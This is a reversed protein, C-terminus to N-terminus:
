EEKNEETVAEEVTEEVPAERPERAANVYAMLEEGTITEKLLLYESVEDLLARNEKLISLASDFASDLLNKVERDVRAATDQSCDMYPTGDLYSNQTTATTMLGLDSSMGYQSVMNRALSTARQLDNSAGTTQVGFVLQEAARGGVLSKLEVELEQRTSLFKEEEPLYMTYGLAGSTHPVITIKSVPQAHKELASVLAHGVEHYAVLRKEMETLVTNKKETGAIVTEFSVLLDEQNVAKRGMRVARLAAENVLNALDAGVAGATAQAIKKLDVDESLKIKRTHVKLTDLRGQYNPRDVIIRRDFRGPRLLAKDLIEPRNTAALCVIGKSPEFGDIESLLQNLTQEQESNNGYRNDRSRGVADIEDIFIICPAVKAAQQFLDRVRSAGMGVFMEVFDSGSISFFPVDAEGAVARALLTKGTGPSGVLLAGKPLKAGIEAYRQPNHLFDIIEKLSEKAEDQGAVDKFTVGTQKEMYVKAKSKGFGGMMGDGGMRKTLTRMFMFLIAFTIGYYLVMLIFSNDEQIEEKVDVGNGVLENSLTLWDGAPMGTYCARQQAAPKAAEERTLYYVRNGRYQVEALQNQEMATRFDSYSTETYQSNSVMNYIWGFLMVLALAIILPTWFNTKPRDGGPKKENPGDNQGYNM